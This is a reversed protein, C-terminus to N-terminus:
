LPYDEIRSSFVTLSLERRSQEEKFDINDFTIKNATHPNLRHGARIISDRYTSYEFLNALAAKSESRIQLQYPRLPKGTAGPASSMHQNESAWM